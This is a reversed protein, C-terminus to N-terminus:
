SQFRRVYAAAQDIRVPDEGFLGIATNCSSHLLGRVTNSSHCHDVVAGRKSSFDLEKFCLACCFDQTYALWAYAELSLNYRTRLNVEYACRLCYTGLKNITARCSPIACLRDRQLYKKSYAERCPKCRTSKPGNPIFETELKCKKCYELTTM